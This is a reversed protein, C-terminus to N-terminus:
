EKRERGLTRLLDEHFEFWINHVSDKTPSSVFDHQGADIAEMSAAFRRPYAAFRADHAALADLLPGLRQVLKDLRSIVKDDYESDAHDNAVKRGGVDVQQWSTMTTLFRSNVTEFRDVLDGLAPDSRLDAYYKAAAAALAPEAEDTPLAADGAVVVLGRDSLDALVATVADADVGTDTAIAPASAMKKLAVVNLVDYGTKDPVPATM